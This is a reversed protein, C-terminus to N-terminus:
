SKEPHEYINGEVWLNPTMYAGLEFVGTAGGFICDVVFRCFSEDWKVVFVSEQVSHLIDGEYIEKNQRDMIGTFQMLEFRDYGPQVYIGDSGYSLVSAKSTAIGIDSYMHAREKDWARFKIERM